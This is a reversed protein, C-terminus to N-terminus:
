AEKEVLDHDITFVKNGSASNSEWWGLFFRRGAFIQDLNKGNPDWLGQSFQDLLNSDALLSAVTAISCPNKPLVRDTNLIISGFVGLVVMAGLLGELIRTSTADQVLRRNNTITINGLLPAHKITDNATSRTYNSLQQANILKHQRKIARIVTQDGEPRMLDDPTIAYKGAILLYFFGDLLPYDGNTNLAWWEPIPMYLNPALKATSEDAIPPHEEDIEMTPLKFRTLVDVNEAFQICNLATVYNISGAEIRGWVYFETYHSHSDVRVDPSYCGDQMSYGFPGDELKYVTFVNSEWPYNVKSDPCALTETQVRLQYAPPNQSTYATLNPKLEAMSMPHCVPASRVAPVRVDVFSGNMLSSDFDDQLTVNAFAFEDYTWRPFSYNYQLIYQSTMIGAVEQTEEMNLKIGAITRPDPFGGVRTFNKSTHSPIEVASFLGSVVITLAWAAGTAITTALVAFNKSCASRLTITFGHSDLFSLHMSKEFTAGKPKNLHAYPALCRTNFDISGYILNFASMVGAPIITWLYHTYESSPSATGLGSNTQSVHLLAELTAIASCILVFLIVRWILEPFPKWARYQDDYEEETISNRESNGFVHISTGGLENKSSYLKGVFRSRLRSASSPGSGRLSSRFDESNATVAAIASIHASNWSATAARFVVTTMTATFLVTVALCAQLIRLPLEAMLVRSETLRASGYVTLNTRQSLGLHLLQATLGRYYASAAREVNDDQWLTEITSTDEGALLMGLKLQDDVRINNPFPYFSEIGRFGSTDSINGSIFAAIDGATLGPLNADQVAITHIRTQSSLETVNKEAKLQLRNLTPKCIFSRSRKLRLSITPYTSHYRRRKGTSNTHTAPAREFDAMFLAVRTGAPGTTNECSGWQFVGAQKIEIHGLTLKSFNDVTCTSTRLRYHQVLKSSVISNDDTNVEELYELSKIDLIAKECKLDAMIGDIPVTIIANPPLNSASFQQFALDGNTGLPYTLNNFAIGNIIDYPQSGVTALQSHISAFTSLTQMPVHQKDVQVKELSFLGTSFVIMLQLLLTCSTGSFVLVHRNKFAKWLAVPQMESVYDLLISKDAPQPAELMSQWPANQKSQFEVRAWFTALLTLIATPGYTWLYHRAESSAAIGNRVQSYYYLIELAAVLLSFLILFLVLVRKRLYSPQWRDERSASSCRNWCQNIIDSLM